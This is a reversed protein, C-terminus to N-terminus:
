CPMHFAMLDLSFPHGEVEHPLGEDQDIIEGASHLGRLLFRLHFQTEVLLGRVWLVHLEPSEDRM